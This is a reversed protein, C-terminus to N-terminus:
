GERTSGTAECPLCPVARIQSVGQAKQRTRSRLVGLKLDVVDDRAPAGACSRTAARLGHCGAELRAFQEDPMKPLNAPGASKLAAVGGERWARRWREVSRESVRLERAVM